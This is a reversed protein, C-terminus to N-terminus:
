VEGRSITPRPAQFTTEDAARLILAKLEQPDPLGSARFGDDGSATQAELTGFNLFTAVIGHISANMDQLRELRFSGVHRHFLGQQDVAILRKNTITWVDLYYNTWVNFLAMWIFLLWVAYLGSLMPTSFTYAAEPVTFPTPLMTITIYAIYPFMSAIALGIMRTFLIFWHKRVQALIIEDPELHIKETLM